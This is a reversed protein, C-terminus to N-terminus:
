GRTSASMPFLHPARKPDPPSVRMQRLLPSAFEPPTQFKSIAVVAQKLSNVEERLARVEEELTTQTSPQTSPGLVNAFSTTPTSSPLAVTDFVERSKKLLASSGIAEAPEQSSPKQPAMLSASAGELVEVKYYVEAAVRSKAQAQSRTTRRHATELRTSAKDERPPWSPPRHQQAEEPVGSATTRPPVFSCKRKRKNCERCAVGKIGAKCSIGRDSCRSCAIVPVLPKPPSSSTRPRKSKSREPGNEGAGEEPDRQSDAQTVADAEDHPEAEIEKRKGKTTLHNWAHDEVEPGPSCVRTLNPWHGRVGVEEVPFVHTDAAILIAPVTLGRAVLPRVQSLQVLIANVVRTWDAVSSTGCNRFNELIEKTTSAAHDIISQASAPM